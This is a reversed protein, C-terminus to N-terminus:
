SHIIVKDAVELLAALPEVTKCPYAVTCQVVISANYNMASCCSNQVHMEESCTVEHERIWGVLGKM